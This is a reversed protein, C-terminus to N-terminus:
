RLEARRDEALPMAALRVILSVIEDGARDAALLDVHPVEPLDGVVGFLYM